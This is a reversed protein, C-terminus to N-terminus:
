PVQDSNLGHGISGDREIEIWKQKRFDANAHAHCNSNM